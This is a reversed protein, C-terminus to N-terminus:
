FSLVHTACRTTRMRLLVSGLYILAWLGLVDPVVVLWLAIRSDGLLTGRRILSIAVSVLLIGAVLTLTSPPEIPHTNESHKLKTSEPM